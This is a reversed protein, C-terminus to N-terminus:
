YFGQDELRERGSIILGRPIARQISWFLRVRQSPEKQSLRLLQESPLGLLVGLVLAEDSFESLSKWRFSAM